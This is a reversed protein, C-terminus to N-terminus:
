EATGAPQRVGGDVLTLALRGTFDNLHRNANAVKTERRPANGTNNGADGDSGVGYPTALADPGLPVGVLGDIRVSADLGAAAVVIAEEPASPAAPTTPPVAVVPPPAAPTIPTTPTTPPTSPVSAAATVSLASANGPSQSVLYNEATLGAGDIAYSGQAAHLPANTSWVLTGDTANGLTDGQVLGSVSGNLTPTQGSSVSAPTAIETLTAPTINAATTATGNVAYNGADAGGATIGAISVIKAAGVNKDAFTASTDAFNVSDGALVGSSALTAADNLGGDYVRSVGIAAVTIGLPTITATTSATSNLTYNGADAGSASIGAISVIKATGVNKDGFAASTDAFIVTDGVLVGTSALTASDALGGDYVKDVGTAAVTIGLPTISATTNAALNNLTYNGSDTGSASIGSISVAKGNAVNKDAFAASTDAFIVSDGALV